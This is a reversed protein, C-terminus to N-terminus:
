SMIYRVLWYTQDERGLGAAQECSETYCVHPGGSNGGPTSDCSCLLMWKNTVSVSYYNSPSVYYRTM